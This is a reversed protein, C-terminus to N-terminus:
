DYLGAYYNDVNTKILALVAEIDDSSGRGSFMLRYLETMVMERMVKSFDKERPLTYATEAADFVAAINIDKQKNEPLGAILEEMNKLAGVKGYEYMKLAGEPGAWLKLFLFADAKKTSRVSIGFADAAIEGSPANPYDDPRPLVQIDWDLELIDYSFWDGM